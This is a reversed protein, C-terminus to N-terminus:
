PANWTFNCNACKAEESAKLFVILKDTKLDEQVTKQIRCKIETKKTSEIICKANGVKVPNDLPDTSFNRGKITILTGGSSSGSTPYVSTVDSVVEFDLESLEGDKETAAVLKYKGSEAGGFKVKITKKFPDVKTVYLPKKFDEDDPKLLTVTVKGTELTGGAV